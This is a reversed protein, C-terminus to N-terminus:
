PKYRKKNGEAMSLAQAKDTITSVLSLKEYSYYELALIYQAM